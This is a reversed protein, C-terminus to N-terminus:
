ELFIVKRDLVSFRDGIELRTQEGGCQWYGSAVADAALENNLFRLHLLAAFPFSSPNEIPNYTALRKRTGSTENPRGHGYLGKGRGRQQLQKWTRLSVVSDLKIFL